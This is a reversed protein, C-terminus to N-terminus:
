FFLSVVRPNRRSRKRSWCFRTVNYLVFRNKTFRIVGSFHSFFVVCLMIILM